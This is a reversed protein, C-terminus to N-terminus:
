FNLSFFSVGADHTIREFEDRIEAIMDEVIHSYRIELGRACVRKRIKREQFLCMRTSPCVEAYKRLVKHPDRTRPPEIYLPTLRTKFERLKTNRTYETQFRRLRERKQRGIKFKDMLEETLHTAILEELPPPKIVTKNAGKCQRIIRKAERDM